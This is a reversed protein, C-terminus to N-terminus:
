ATVEKAAMQKGLALVVRLAAGALRSVRQYEEWVPQRKKCFDCWPFDRKDWQRDLDIEAEYCRCGHPRSCDVSAGTDHNLDHVNELRKKAEAKEQRREYLARVADRIQEDKM